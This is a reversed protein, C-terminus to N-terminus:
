KQRRTKLDVELNEAQEDELNNNKKQSILKQIENQTM